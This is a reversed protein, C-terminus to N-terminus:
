ETPTRADAMDPPSSSPPRAKPSLESPLLKGPNLLGDPDFLRKMGRLLGVIAPGHELELYPSKLAGLGHEASITGGLAHVGALLRRRLEEAPPSAPDVVFNPHLSAEGLHGYTFVEVRASEALSAILALLEGLRDPPVAVDERLRLGFRQDLLLGSEGRLTWLEDARPFMTAESDLGEPRLVELLRGLDDTASEETGELELLLLARGSPVRAAAVRHLEEATGRDVYEIASLPLGRESARDLLDRIRPLSTGEPIPVVIAQRRAPLPALELLLETFLGLTGESGVLLGVLDPGVSRKRARTECRMREGTGLVAEWGRVWRRMPGYRYSRPGSANTAANGGLTSTRWSGPNPPFTFGKAAAEEQLTRNVVGPEVRVLRNAEDWELVRTWRSFDMVLAGPTPVSEGDLSSGGGRAVVAVSARRAWRIAEQVDAADSPRLVGAATGRLHSADGAVGALAEPERSLEGHVRRALERWSGADAPV